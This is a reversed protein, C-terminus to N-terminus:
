ACCILIVAKGLNYDSVLKEDEMIVAGSEVMSPAEEGAGALEGGFDDGVIMEDEAFDEGLTGLAPEFETDRTFGDDLTPFYKFHTISSQPVGFEISLDYTLTGIRTSPDVTLTVEDGFADHEKRFTLTVLPSKSAPGALPTSVRQKLRSNRHKGAHVVGGATVKYFALTRHNRLEHGRYCLKLGDAVPVDMMTTSAIIAYKLERVTTKALDGVAVHTAGASSRVTVYATAM